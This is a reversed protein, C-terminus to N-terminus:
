GKARIIDAAEKVEMGADILHLLQTGQLVDDQVKERSIGKKEALNKTIEYLATTLESIIDAESGNANINGKDIRIM